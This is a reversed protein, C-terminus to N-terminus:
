QGQAAKVSRVVYENPDDALKAIAAGAGPARAGMAALEQVARLRVWPNRDGLAETLTREAPADQKERALGWAAVVRVIAAPDATLRELEARQGGFWALGTAAWYRVGIDPDKAADLLKPLAARGRGVLDAAALLRDVLKDGGPSHLISWRGGAAPERAALESEHLLGIDRCERQWALVQGRLRALVAAHEPRDALNRLEFPDAETDYLEELPKSDALFQASEPKLRGAAFERRWEALTPTQEGYANPLYRNLYPAYNRVYRWRRDRASRIMEPQEDMRDRASFVVQRPPTLKPGLFARGQFHAPIPVGALNLVTPGLDMLMLLQDDVSGPQGQGDVRYRQPVRALLPVRTGSDIVWRKCRPMGDGHDGWFFVITNDALGAEDLERLLAGVQQDMVTQCERLHALDLRVEPTDPLYPPVSQQAPDQRQEPTLDGAAQQYPRGRKRFQSEHTIELNFVAFFPQGPARNKWHARQNCQDWAEKPVPFNYDTKARNTCYYGAQRLYEPFCHVFEPLSVQSRMHSTGLCTPYMSTIISSRSPACVGYTSFARDYRVSQAALAELNPTKALPDGYCRLHPSMDECSIWVINPRNGQTRAARLALAAAGMAGVAQRRTMAM